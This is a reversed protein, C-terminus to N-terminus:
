HGSWRGLSVPTTDNVTYLIWDAVLFWSATVFVLPLTPMAIAIASM